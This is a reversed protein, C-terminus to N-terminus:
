QTLLAEAADVWATPSMDKSYKVQGIVNGDTALLLVTPYSSIQYRTALQENQQKIDAAQNKRKPYDLELLVVNEGAWQQFTPTEFVNQKLKTCWHCWDSGTFDALIPHGTSQSEALADGWSDHWRTLQASSTDSQSLSGPLRTALDGAEASNQDGSITLSDDSDRNHFLNSISSNACGLFNLCGLCIGLMLTSVAIAARTRIGDM